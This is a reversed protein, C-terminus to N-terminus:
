FFFVIELHDMQRFSFSFDQPVNKERFLKFNWSIPSACTTRRRVFLITYPFMLSARSFRHRQLKGFQWFALFNMDWRLWTKCNWTFFCCINLSNSASGQLFTKVFSLFYVKDSGQSKLAITILVSLLVYAHLHFLVVYFLIKFIGAFFFLM